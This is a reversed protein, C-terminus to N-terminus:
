FKRMKTEFSTLTTIKKKSFREFYLQFYNRSFELYYKKGPEIICFYFKVMIRTPMQTTACTMYEKNTFFIVVFSFLFYLISFFIILNKRFERVKGSHKKIAFINRVKELKRKKEMHTVVM